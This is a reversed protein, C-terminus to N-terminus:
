HLGKYPNRPVPPRMLTALQQWAAILVDTPIVFATKTTAQQSAAVVMGIVGELQTDWVPAGSFGSIVAIGPIKVDEIQIWNTGQRGLLRGTAWIGEDFGQPFGLARFSHDWVQDAPAFQVAEAGVPPEDLLELGAIDGRGDSQVPDWFIVKATLLTHLAIQPFDLSVTSAPQNLADGDSLGLADAIVHACTLIHRTGVLFGAGAVGGAKTHIRVLSTNISESM